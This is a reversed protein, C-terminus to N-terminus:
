KILSDFYILTKKISESASSLVIEFGERELEKQAEFYFDGVIEIHYDCLSPSFESLVELANKTDSGSVVIDATHVSLFNMAKYENLLMNADDEFIMDSEVSAEDKTMGEYTSYDPSPAEEAAPTDLMPSEPEAYSPEMPTDFADEVVGDFAGNSETSLTSDTTFHEPASKKTRDLGNDIIIKAFIGVMMVAVFVAAIKTILSIRRARESKKIRDMVPITMNDPAKFVGRTKKVLEYARRCEPCIDLHEFFESPQSDEWMLDRAKTCDM